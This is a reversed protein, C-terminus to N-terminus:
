SHKKHADRYRSEEPWLDLKGLVHERYWAIEQELGERLTTRPEYSLLRRAKAINADTRHQDGPRPPLQRLRAQKGLLEEALRIGEGTTSTADSGINFIEGTCRDFNELVAVMGDVIDAVYTYSRLHEESGAYLPFERDELIAGILKVYLKEPRDRPGYVSFLRLSAAPFSRDRAAALALQEAALKTVGYYSAPQPETTEDGTADLGYVSSTSVNVFGQLGGRAESARVLRHTAVVNNRLYAEFPTTASIGPQGALHFVFDVGALAPGLDDAALDLAAFEAGRARIQSLNHEKLARVYYDTLCDLGRVTHGLELLRETLHSGIFGAAGTVLIRM